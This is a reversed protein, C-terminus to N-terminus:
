WSRSLRSFDSGAPLRLSGLTGDAIAANLELLLEVVTRDGTQTAASAIKFTTEVVSLVSGVELAEFSPLHASLNGSQALSDLSRLLEATNRETGGAGALVFAVVVSGAMVGSIQIRETPVRLAAALGSGVEARFLPLSMISDYDDSLRLTCKTSGADPSDAGNDPPSLATVEIYERSLALATAVEAEVLRKFQQVADVDGAVVGDPAEMQLTIYPEPAEARSGSGVGTRVLECGDAGYAVGVFGQM